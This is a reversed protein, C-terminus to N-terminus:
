VIGRAEADDLVMGVFRQVLEVREARETLSEHTGRSWVREALQLDAALQDIAADTTTLTM